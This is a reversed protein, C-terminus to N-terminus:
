STGSEVGGLKKVALVAYIVYFPLTLIGLWFHLYYAMAAYMEIAMVAEGTVGFTYATSLTSLAMILPVVVITDKFLSILTTIAGLALGAKSNGHKYCWYASAAYFLPPYIMLIFVLPVGLGYAIVASGLPTAAIPALVHVLLTAVYGIVPALLGTYAMFAKLKGGYRRYLALTALGATVPGLLFRIVLTEVDYGPLPVANLVLALPLTIKFWREVKM